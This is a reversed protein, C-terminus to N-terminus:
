ASITRHLLPLSLYALKKAELRMNAVSDLIVGCVFCIVASLMIGLSLFATPFRPVLGTQVYEAVIPLGFALSAVVLGGALLSFFLFPRGEKFMFLIFKLIKIGDKYTSLKSQTGDARKFYRTPAEAVPMSLQLAHITMETEIEFAKSSAPFSKVYRRSFARYGSLMDELTNDFITHVCFNLMRNGFQHGPRYAEKDEHERAGVVMDLNEDTLKEILRPACAADYTGDGDAMIYIDAEIDAFMRRVVNGKGKRPEARVIAGAKEAVESTKDTSANDYVYIDAGPLTEKFSKVVEAIAAEENHCPLLVAINM